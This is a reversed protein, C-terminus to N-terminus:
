EQLIICHANVVNTVTPKMLILKLQPQQILSAHVQVWDDMEGEDVRMMLM